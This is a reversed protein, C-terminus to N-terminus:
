TNFTEEGNKYRQHFRSIDKACKRERELSFASPFRVLM